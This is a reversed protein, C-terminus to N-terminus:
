AFYGLYATFWIGVYVKYLFICAAEKEAAKLVKSLKWFIDEFYLFM